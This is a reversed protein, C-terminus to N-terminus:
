KKYKYGSIPCKHSTKYKERYYASLSVADYIKGNAVWLLRQTKLDSAVQFNM